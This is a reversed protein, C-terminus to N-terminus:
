DQNELVVVIVKKVKQDPRDEKVLIVKKVLVVKRVWVVKIVKQDLLAKLDLYVKPDLIVVHDVYVKNEMVVVIVKKERKVLQVLFVVPAWVDKIGKKVKIVRQARYVLLVPIVQDVM